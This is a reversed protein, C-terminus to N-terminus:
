MGLPSGHLYTCKCKYVFNNPLSLNCFPKEGHTMSKVYTMVAAQGSFHLFNVNEMDKVKDNRGDTCEFHEACRQEESNLRESM